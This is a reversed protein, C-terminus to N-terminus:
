HSLPPIKGQPSAALNAAFQAAQLRCAPVDFFVFHGDDNPAPVFQALVGSAGGDALNGALGSSGISLDGIGGWAEEVVTHVGPAQRPLGIAVSGVEIGQPPAYTDGTGDPNVGETQYISKPAHGPRPREILYQMYVLPDIPDIVTQAFSMMPHFLTLEAVDSPQTLGLLFLWLGAVSPSPSTKDLLTIPVSSSSGSLVGGLASAHSALYLPGSLGGQSHGMFLLKTPDFVIAKGTVATAAPIAMKTETFLRAQTVIDIASQRTNTRMASPNGVNFFSVEEDGEANPDGPAPAGPRAGSFIEDIGMSAICQRAMADGVGNEEDIVSRFDGGTGHAYLLIPYGSAPMPCPGANPVVLTFRMPFTNQLVANGSSDFVFNGGSDLYPATGQQFNPAPGYWGQYVDYIGPSVDATDSVLSSANAAGADEGAFSSTGPAGNPLVTPAPVLAPLLDVVKFLEATPDNTTFVTFHAINSAPIGLAVVDALAPAFLDHVPKNTSSTATLGLVASLDPSPGIAAGATSRVGRTVVIAYKTNPLLPYGLAPGVVLTDAQWYDGSAQRFSVQAVHRKDHEPSSPDVNILQVTASPDLTDTPTAPLSTPDLDTAFRMYGYAATSFGKIAGTLSTVYATVIPEAFPNYVGALLINGNADLRYDSPWPHDFFATDKLSSVDAPVIFISQPIGADGASADAATADGKAKSSSCAGLFFPLAPAVFLTAPLLWKM